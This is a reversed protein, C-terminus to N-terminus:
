WIPSAKCCNGRTRLAPRSSPKQHPRDIWTMGSPQFVARRPSSAPASDGHTVSRLRGVLSEARVEEGRNKEDGLAEQHQDDDEPDHDGDDEGRGVGVCLAFVM